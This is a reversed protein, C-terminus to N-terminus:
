LLDEPKFFFSIETKASEPSDSGHVANKTISQAFDSRITGKAAKAPDTAGMIERNKAIANPGELVMVVIPGSSMFQVLNDFFPKGKHIAYFAEAQEKTLHTMKIAKITLGNKEFRAIIEGVHKASVADPKIISLTQETKNTSGNSGGNGGIGTGNDSAYLQLALASAALTFILKKM